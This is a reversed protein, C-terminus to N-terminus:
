LFLNIKMAYIAKCNRDLQFKTEFYVILQTVVAVSELVNILM